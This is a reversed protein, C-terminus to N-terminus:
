AVLPKLPLLHPFVESNILFRVGRGAYKPDTGLQGSRVFGIYLNLRKRIWHLREEVDIWDHDVILHLLVQGTKPDISILDINEGTTEGEKERTPNNM